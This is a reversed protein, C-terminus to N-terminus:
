KRSCMESSQKCSRWHMVNEIGGCYARRLVNREKPDNQKWKKNNDSGLLLVAAHICDLIGDFHCYIDSRVGYLLSRNENDSHHVM